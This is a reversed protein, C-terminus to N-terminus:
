ITKICRLLFDIEETRIASNHQNYVYLEFFKFQNASVLWPLKGFIVATDGHPVYSDVLQHKRFHRIQVSGM